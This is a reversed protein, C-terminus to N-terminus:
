FLPDMGCLRLWDMVHKVDKVGEVNQVILKWEEEARREIWKHMQANTCKHTQTDKDRWPCLRTYRSVWGSRGNMRM